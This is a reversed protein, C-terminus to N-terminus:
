IMEWSKRQGKALVATVYDESFEQLALREEPNFVPM